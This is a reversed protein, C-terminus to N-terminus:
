VIVEEMTTRLPTLGIENYFHSAPENLAWVNLTVSNCASEKAISRAHEYLKTGIHKGREDKDVCLDDIYLTKRYHLQNTESTEQFICFVYGKIGVDDTYVYVPTLTDEIIGRLEETTYKKTGAKFIDPRGIAHIAQVQYLLENLRPIDQETAKRIMANDVM